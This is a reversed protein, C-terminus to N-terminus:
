IHWFPMKVMLMHWEPTHQGGTLSEQLNKIQKIPL